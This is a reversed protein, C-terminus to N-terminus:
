KTTSCADRPLRANLGIWKSRCWTDSLDEGSPHDSEAVYPFDGSSVYWWADHRKGFDGVIFGHGYLGCDTHSEVVAWQNHRTYGCFLITENLYENWQVIAKGLTSTESSGTKMLQMMQNFFTAWSPKYCHGERLRAAVLDLGFAYELDDCAVLVDEDTGRLLDAITDLPRVTTKVVQDNGM